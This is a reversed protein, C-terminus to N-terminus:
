GLGHASGDDYLVQHFPVIVHHGDIAARARAVLDFSSDALSLAEQGSSATNV